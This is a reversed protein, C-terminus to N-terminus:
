QKLVSRNRGQTQEQRLNLYLTRWGPNLGGNVQIYFNVSAHAVQCEGCGWIHIDGYIYIGM